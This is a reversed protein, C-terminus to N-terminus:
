SRCDTAHLSFFTIAGARDRDVSARCSCRSGKLVTTATEPVGSVEVPADLDSWVIGCGRTGAVAHEAAALIPLGHAPAGHLIGVVALHGVTTTSTARLSDGNSFGYDLTLVGDRETYACSRAGEPRIASFLDPQSEVSRRWASLPGPSLPLECLAERAELPIASTQTAHSSAPMLCLFGAFLGAISTTSIHHM